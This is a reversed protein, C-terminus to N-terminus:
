ATSCAGQVHAWCWSAIGSGLLSSGPMVGLEVDVWALGHKGSRM